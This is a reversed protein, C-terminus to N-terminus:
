QSIEKRLLYYLRLVATITGTGTGTVKIYTYPAGTISTVATTTTTSGTYVTGITTYNTGDLSGAWITTVTGTGTLRTSVPQIGTLNYGATVRFIKSVSATNVITDGAVLPMLAATGFQAKAQNGVVSVILTLAILVFLKLNKM